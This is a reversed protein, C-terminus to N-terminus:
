ENQGVYRVGTLLGEQSLGGESNAWCARIYDLEIRMGPKFYPHKLTFRFPKSLGTIGGEDIAICETGRPLVSLLAQKREELLTVQPSYKGDKNLTSMLTIEFIHTAIGEPPAPIPDEIHAKLNADDGCIFDYKADEVAKYGEENFMPYSYVAYDSNTDTKPDFGTYSLELFGLPALFCSIQGLDAHKNIVSTLWKVAKSINNKGTVKVAFYHVKETEMTGLIQRVLMTARPKDLAVQASANFLHRYDPLLDTTQIAPGQVINEYSADIAQELEELSKQLNEM